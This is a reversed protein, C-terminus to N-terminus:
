REARSAAISCRGSPLGMPRMQNSRYSLCECRIAQLQAEVDAALDRLESASLAILAEYQDGIMRAFQKRVLIDSSVDIREMTDITQQIHDRIGTREVNM